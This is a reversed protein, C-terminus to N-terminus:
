ILGTVVLTTQFRLVCNLYEGSTAATPAVTTTQRPDRDPGHLVRAATPLDREAPLRGHDIRLEAAADDDAGLATAPEDRGVSAHEPGAAPGHGPRGHEGGDHPQVAAATPHAPVRGDRQFRGANREPAPRGVAPHRVTRRHVVRDREVRLRLEGSADRRGPRKGNERVRGRRALQDADDADHGRVGVDVAPRRGRDATRHGEERDRVQDTERVERPFRVAGPGQAGGRLPGEAGVRQLVRQQLARM